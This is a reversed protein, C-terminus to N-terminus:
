SDKKVISGPAYSDYGPMSFDAGQAGYVPEGYVGKIGKMEKKFNTEDYINNQADKLNEPTIYDRILSKMPYRANATDSKMSFLTQLNLDIGYQKAFVRTFMVLVAIGLVLGSAFNDFLIVAVVITGIVVQVEPKVVFGFNDPDLMIAVLLVVVAAAVTLM